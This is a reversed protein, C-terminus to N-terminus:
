KTSTIGELIAKAIKQVAEDSITEKKEEEIGLGSMVGKTISAIADKDSKETTEDPSASSIISSLAEHLKRLQDLTAKAIKAGAKNVPDIDFKFEFTTVDSKKEVKEIRDGLDNLANEIKGLAKIVEEMSAEENRKVVVFKRKNAARDVLSVHQPKIEELRRVKLNEV